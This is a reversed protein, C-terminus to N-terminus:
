RQEPSIEITAIEEQVVPVDGQLQDQGIGVNRFHGGVYPLDRLVPTSQYTRATRVPSSLVISRGDLRAVRGEYTVVPEGSQSKLTIVCHQGVEPQALLAATAVAPTASGASHCGPLSAAALGCFLL